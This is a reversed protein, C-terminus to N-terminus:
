GLDREQAGSREWNVLCKFTGYAEFETNNSESSQYEFQFGCLKLPNKRSKRSAETLRRTLPLHSM